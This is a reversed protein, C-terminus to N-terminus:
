IWSCTTDIATIHLSTPHEMLVKQILLHVADILLHPNDVVQIKDKSWGQQVSVEMIDAYSFKIDVSM